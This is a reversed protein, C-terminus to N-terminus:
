PAGSCPDPSACGTYIYIHTCVYTYTYTHVYTHIYICVAEGAAFAVDQVREHADRLRCELSAFACTHADNAAADLLKIERHRRRATADAEQQQEFAVQAPTHLRM